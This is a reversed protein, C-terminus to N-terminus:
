IVKSKIKGKSFKLDLIDGVAVMSADKVIKDDKFVISFGRRLIREPNLNKITRLVFDLRTKTKDVFQSVLMVMNKQIIDLRRKKEELCREFIRGANYSIDKADRVKKEIDQGLLHAYHELSTMIEARDPVLREAANSPTSARMDAVCDALTEDREHGIGVLTPIKSAYIARAVEESNFAGLDDLSGGGRTIVLADLDPMENNFYGIARLIQPIAEKGQVQTHLLNIELGSWRNNLIRIFDTYAASERSAILGLKAPFKPLPRKREPAFLGEAQLKAKLLEFARRLAGEGMIKIEHITISFKGYKKHIGPLGRVRITMGDEITEKLTWATMFCNIKSGDGDKLDFFVWRDQSINFGSIEGEVWIEFALLENAADIFESVSYIKDM